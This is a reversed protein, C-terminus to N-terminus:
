AILESQATCPHCLNSIQMLCLYLVEIGKSNMAPQRFLCVAAGWHEHRVVIHVLAGAAFGGGLWGASALANGGVAAATAAAAGHITPLQRAIAADLHVGM